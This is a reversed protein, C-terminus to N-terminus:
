FHHKTQINRQKLTMLILFHDITMAGIFFFECVFRFPGRLILIKLQTLKSFFLKYSGM